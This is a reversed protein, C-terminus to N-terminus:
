ALETQLDREMEDALETFGLNRATEIAAEATSDIVAKDFKARLSRKQIDELEAKIQAIKQDIATRKQRPNIEQIIMERGREREGCFSGGHRRRFRDATFIGPM